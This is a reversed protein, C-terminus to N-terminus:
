LFQAEHHQALLHLLLNRPLIDSIASNGRRDRQGDEGRAAIEVEAVRAAIPEELIVELGVVVVVPGGNGGGDAQEGGEGVEGEEAAEDSGGGGDEGGGQRGEGADGAEAQAAAVEARLAAGLDAPRDAPECPQAM